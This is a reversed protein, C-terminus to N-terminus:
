VRNCMQRPPVNSVMVRKHLQYLYIIPKGINNAKFEEM